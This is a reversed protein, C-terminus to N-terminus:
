TPTKYTQSTTHTYLKQANTQLYKHGRSQALGVTLIAPGAEWHDLAQTHRNTRSTALKFGFHTHNRALLKRLPVSRNKYLNDIYGPAVM